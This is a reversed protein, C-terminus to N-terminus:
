RIQLFQSIARPTRLLHNKIFNATSQYRRETILIYKQKQKPAIFVTVLFMYVYMNKCFVTSKYECLLRKFISTLKVLALAECMCMLTHADIPLNM